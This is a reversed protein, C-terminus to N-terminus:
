VKIFTYHTFIFVKINSREAYFFELYAMGQFVNENAVMKPDDVRLFLLSLGQFIKAPLCKADMVTLRGWFCFIGPIKDFDACSCGNHACKEISYIEENKNTSGQVFENQIQIFICSAFIFYTEFHYRLM